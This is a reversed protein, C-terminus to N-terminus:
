PLKDEVEQMGYGTLGLKHVLQLPHVPCNEYAMCTSIAKSSTGLWLGTLPSGRGRVQRSRGLYDLSNARGGLGVPFYSRSRKFAFHGLQRHHKWDSPHLSARERIGKPLSFKPHYIVLHNGQKSELCGLPVTTNRM